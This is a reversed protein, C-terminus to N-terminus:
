RRRRASRPCHHRPSGAPHTGAPRLSGLTGATDCNPNAQAGLPLLTIADGKLQGDTVTAEFTMGTGGGPTIKLDFSSAKDSGWDIKGNGNATISLGCQNGSGAVATARM